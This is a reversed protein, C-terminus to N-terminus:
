QSTAIQSLLRYFFLNEVDIGKYAWGFFINEIHCLLFLPRIRLLRHKNSPAKSLVSIGDVVAVVFSAWSFEHFCCSALRKETNIADVLLCVFICYQKYSHFRLCSCYHITRWWAFYKWKMKWLLDNNKIFNWWEENNSSSKFYKIM